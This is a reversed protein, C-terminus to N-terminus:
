YFYTRMADTKLKILLVVVHAKSDYYTGLDKIMLQYTACYAQLKYLHDPCAGRVRRGSISM